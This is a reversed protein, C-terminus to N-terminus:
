SNQFNGGTQLRPGQLFKMIGQGVHVHACDIIVHEFGTMTETFRSLSKEAHISSLRFIGSSATFNRAM